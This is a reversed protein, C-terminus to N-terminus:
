IPAEAKSERVLKRITQQVKQFCSILRLADVQVHDYYFDQRAKEILDDPLDFNFLVRKLPHREHPDYQVDAPEHGRYVLYAVLRSDMTTFM